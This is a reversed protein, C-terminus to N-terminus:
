LSNPVVEAGIERQLLASPEEGGKFASHYGVETMFGFTSGLDMSLGVVLDLEM